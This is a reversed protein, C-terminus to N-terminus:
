NDRWKAYIAEIRNTAEQLSEEPTLKDVIVRSVMDTIIYQHEVESAAQTLPGPWGPSRGAELAAYIPKLAPDQYVPLDLYKKITPNQFGQGATYFQTLGEDSTLYRLLDKALDPYKTYNLIALSYNDTVAAEGAPGAPWAGHLTKAAMDPDQTKLQYYISPANSTIALQGAGWAKNNASDDWGTVGPPMVGSNYLEVMYKLAELTEPSNFMVKTGDESCLKGGFAWIVVQVFNIGDRTRSYAEGLGYIGKDPQNLVKAVEALEDFTEPIKQGAAEFLDKRYMMAPIGTYFPIGIWKSGTYAAAKNAPFFEGREKIIDEAIDTVDLLADQYLMASAVRFTAIDPGYKNEIANVLKLDFDKEVIFDVQIEVGNQAGWEEARAKILEDASPVWHKMYLINIKPKEATYGFSFIGLVLIIIFLLVILVKNRLM